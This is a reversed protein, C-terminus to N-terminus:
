LGCLGILTLYTYFIGNFYETVIYSIEKCGM